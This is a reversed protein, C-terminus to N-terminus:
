AFDRHSPLSYVFEYLCDNLETEVMKLFPKLANYARENYEIYRKEIIGEVDCNDAELVKRLYVEEKNGYLEAIFLILQHIEILRAANDSLPISTARPPLKIGWREPAEQYRFEEKAQAENTRKEEM